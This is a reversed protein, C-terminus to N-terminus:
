AVGLRQFFSRVPRPKPTPTAPRPMRARLVRYAAQEVLPGYESPEMWLRDAAKALAKQVEEDEFHVGPPAQAKVAAILDNDFTM